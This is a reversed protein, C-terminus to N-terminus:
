LKLDLQELIANLILEFLLGMDSRSIHSTPTLMMQRIETQLKAIKRTPDKTNKDNRSNYIIIVYTKPNTQRTIICPLNTFFV